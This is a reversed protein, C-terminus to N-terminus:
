RKSAGKKQIKAMMVRHQAQVMKHLDQVQTQLDGELCVGARHLASAAADLLTAAIRISEIHNGKRPDPCKHGPIDPCAHALRNDYQKKLAAQKGPELLTTLNYGNPIDEFYVFYDNVPNAPVPKHVVQKVVAIGGCIDDEGHDIYWSSNIYLEDGPKVDSPKM